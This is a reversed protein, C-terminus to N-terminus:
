QAPARKISFLTCGADRFREIMDRLTQEDTKYRASLCNLCLGETVNRGMLKKSIGMEDLTIAKGCVACTM